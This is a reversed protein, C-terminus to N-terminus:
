SASQFTVSSEALLSKGLQRAPLTNDMVFTCNIFIADQLRLQKGSYHIEVGQFTVHRVFKDDLIVAGGTLILQASGVTLNANLNKGITEFRAADEPAVPVPIHSPQPVPKGDVLPGIHYHTLKIEV